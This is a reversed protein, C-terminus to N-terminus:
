NRGYNGKKFHNKLIIRLIFYLITYWPTKAMSFYKFLKHFFTKFDTEGMIEKRLITKIIRLLFCLFHALSNELTM